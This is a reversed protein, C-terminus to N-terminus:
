KLSNSIKNPRQFIVFHNLLISPRRLVHDPVTARVSRSDAAAADSGAACVAAKCKRQKARADNEGLFIVQIIKQKNTKKKQSFLECSLYRRDVSIEDPNPSSIRVCDHAWSHDKGKIDLPPCDVPFEAREPRGNVTFYITKTAMDRFRSM